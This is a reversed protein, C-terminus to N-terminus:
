GTDANPSPKRKSPRIHLFSPAGFFRRLVIELRSAFVLSDNGDIIGNEVFTAFSEILIGNLVSTFIQAPIGTACVTRNEPVAGPSTSDPTGVPSQIM